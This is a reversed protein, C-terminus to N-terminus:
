SAQTFSLTSMLQLNSGGVLGLRRSFWITGQVASDHQAYTLRDLLLRTFDQSRAGPPATTIEPVHLSSLRLRVWGPSLGAAPGADVTDIPKEILEMSERTSLKTLEGVYIALAPDTLPALIQALDPEYVSREGLEPMPTSDKRPFYSALYKCENGADDLFHIVPASTFLAGCTENRHPGCSRMDTTVAMMYGSVQWQLPKTVVETPQERLRLRTSAIVVTSQPAKSLRCLPFDTAVYEAGDAARLECRTCDTNAKELGAPEALPGEYRGSIRSRLQPAVMDRIFSNQIIHANLPALPSPAMAFLVLRPPQLTPPASSSPRPLNGPVAIARVVVNEDGGGLRPKLLVNGDSTKPFILANPSFELRPFKCGGSPCLDGPVDVGNFIVPVLAMPLQQPVSRISSWTSLGKLSLAYAFTNEVFCTPCTFDNEPSSDECAVRATTPTVCNGSVAAGTKPKLEWSLKRGAKNYSFYDKVMMAQPDNRGLHSLLEPDSQFIQRRVRSSSLYPPLTKYDAAIDILSAQGDASACFSSGQSSKVYAQTFYVTELNYLRTTLQYLPSTLASVAIRMSTWPSELPQASPYAAGADIASFFVADVVGHVLDRNDNARACFADPNEVSPCSWFASGSLRQSLGGSADAIHGFRQPGGALLNMVLLIDPRPRPPRRLRMNPPDEIRGEPAPERAIGGTGAARAVVVVFPRSSPGTPYDNEPLFGCNRAWTDYTDNRLKPVAVNLPGGHLTLSNIFRYNEGPLRSTVEVFDPAQQGAPTVTNGDARSIENSLKGNSLGALTFLGATTISNSTAFMYAAEPNDLMGDAATIRPVWDPPAIYSSQPGRPQQVPFDSPMASLSQSQPFLFGEKPTFRIFAAKAENDSSILLAIRDPFSAAVSVLKRLSTIVRMGTVSELNARDVFFYPGLEAAAMTLQREFDAAIIESTSRQSTDSAGSDTDTRPSPFIQSELRRLAGLIRGPSLEPGVNINIVSLPDILCSRSNKTTEVVLPRVTDGFVRSKLHLRQLCLNAFTSRAPSYTEVFAYLADPEAPNSIIAHVREENFAINALAREKPRDKLAYRFITHLTRAPLAVVNAIAQDNLHMALRSEGASGLESARITTNTGNTRNLTPISYVNYFHAGPSETSDPGQVTRAEFVFGVNQMNKESAGPKSVDRIMIVEAFLRLMGDLGVWGYIVLSDLFRRSDLNETFSCGGETRVACRVQGDDCPVIATSDALPTCANPTQCQCVPDDELALSGTIQGLRNAIPCQVTNAGTGDPLGPQPDFEGSRICLLAATTLVTEWWPVPKPSSVPGSTLTSSSSASPSLTETSPLQGSRLPIVVAFSSPNLEYSMQDGDGSLMLLSPVTQVNGLAVEPHQRLNRMDLMGSVRVMPLTANMSMNLIQGDPQLDVNIQLSGLVEQWGFANPPVVGASVNEDVTAIVIGGYQPAAFTQNEVSRVSVLQTQTAAILNLSYPPGACKDSGAITEITVASVAVTHNSAASPDGWTVTATVKRFLKETTACAFNSNNAVQVSGMAIEPGGNLPYMAAEASCFHTFTATMPGEEIAKYDAFFRGTCTSLLPMDGSLTDGFIELSFIGSQVLRDRGDRGPRLLVVSAQTRLGLNPPPIFTGNVWTDNRQRGFYNPFPFPWQSWPPYQMGPIMTSQFLGVQLSNNAKAQVPPDLHMTPAQVGIPLGSSLNLGPPAKSPDGSLCTPVSQDTRGVICSQIIDPETGAFDEGARFTGRQCLLSACTPTGRTNFNTYIGRTDLIESENQLKITTQVQLDSRGRQPRVVIGATSAFTDNTSSSKNVSQAYNYVRPIGQAVDFSQQAWLLCSATFIKM